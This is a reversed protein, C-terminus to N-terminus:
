KEKPLDSIKQEFLRKGNENWFEIWIGKKYYHVASFGKQQIGFSPLDPNKVFSTVSVSGSVIYYQNRREDGFTLYQLNHDHGSAYIIPEREAFASTLQEKLNSYKQSAIDQSTGWINRYLAYLSGGVPPLLHTKLPFKGGNNGNSYMPHHGVVLVQDAKEDTVAERVQEFAQESTANFASDTEAGPKNYPHLWWQTNLAVISLNLEENGAKVLAPGPLGDDPLFVNGRNLSEEIFCEQRQVYELGNEGSSNWDHNGAVFVVKGEFDEVTKFQAQLYKEAKPRSKQNEPPLGDPYINDGLFVVASQEGAQKLQERLVSLTPELPDLSAYGADGALFVSYLRESEDPQNSNEVVPVEDLSPPKTSVCGSIIIPILLLTLLKKM